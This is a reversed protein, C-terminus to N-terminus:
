FKAKGVPTAKYSIAYTTAPTQEFAISINDLIVFRDRLSAEYVWRFQVFGNPTLKAAELTSQMNKGTVQEPLSQLELRTSGDLTYELAFRSSSPQALSRYYMFGVLINGDVTALRYRPSYFATHVEEGNEATAADAVLAVGHSLKAGYLRDTFEWPCYAKGVLSPWMWGGTLAGGDFDFQSPLTEYTHFRATFESNGTVVRDAKPLRVAAQLNRGAVLYSHELSQYGEAHITLTGQTRDEVVWVFPKGAPKAYNRGDFSVSANPIEKGQEDLVNLTLSYFAGQEVRHKGAKLAISYLPSELVVGPKPELTYDGIPLVEDTVPKGDQHLEYANFIEELPLLTRDSPSVLGKYDFDWALSEGFPTSGAIPVLELNAKRVTIEIPASRAEIWGNGGRQIASVQAKGPKGIYLKGGNCAVVSNDSSIFEVALGSTSSASPSVPKDGYQYSTEALSLTVTQEQELKLVYYKKHEGNEATISFMFPKRLDVKTVGSIVEGKACRATAGLSTEFKLIVEAPNKLTGTTETLRLPITSGDIAAVLEQKLGENDAAPLSLSLLEREKSKDLLATLTVKQKCDKGFIRVQAELEVPSPFNFVTSGTVEVGKYLIRTGPWAPIINGKVSSLDTSKEFTLTYGGARKEQKLQKQFEFTGFLEDARVWLGQNDANTIAEPNGSVLRGVFGNSSSYVMDSGYGAVFPLAAVCSADTVDAFWSDKLEQPTRVANWVRLGKMMGDFHTAAQVSLMEPAHQGKITMPAEVGNIYAKVTSQGPWFPGGAMMDSFVLAIHNWRNPLLTNAATWGMMKNDLNFALAQNAVDNNMGSTALVDLNLAKFLTAYQPYDLNVWMEITYGVAYDPDPIKLERLDIREAYKSQSQFHLAFLGDTPVVVYKELSNNGSNYDQASELTVRM